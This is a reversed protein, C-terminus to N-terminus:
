GQIESVAQRLIFPVLIQAEPTLIKTYILYKLSNLTWTWNPTMRHMEAKQRCEIEFVLPQLAFRVLAQAEPTLREHM